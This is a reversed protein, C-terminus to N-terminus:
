VDIWSCDSASIKKVPTDSDVNTENVSRLDDWAVHADDDVWRDFKSNFMLDIFHVDIISTQTSNFGMALTTM